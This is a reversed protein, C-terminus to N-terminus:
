SCSIGTLRTVIQCIRVDLIVPKLHLSSQAVVLATRPAQHVVKVNAISRELGDLM